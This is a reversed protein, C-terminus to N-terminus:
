SLILNFNSQRTVELGRCLCSYFGYRLFDFNFRDVDDDLPTPDGEVRKLKFAWLVSATMIWITQFALENGPCIRRGFGFVFERPDLELKPKLFREPDFTSPNQYYQTSRSM